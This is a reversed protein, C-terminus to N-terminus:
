LLEIYTFDGPETAAFSPRSEFLGFITSGSGSMAAYVAGSRYMQAKIVRLRPHLAFVSPEFDNRLLERWEEIPQRLLQEIPPVAVNPVVGAYAQATSIGVDPKVLLLWLGSLSVEFPTMIEGRGTALCVENKVFFPTDSGLRAALQQIIEFSLGLRWLDNCLLLVTTADASGGGLGAGSPVCKHLHIRAQSIGYERQMLRLAKVCLNNQAPCDVAIGSTTFEFEDGPLVEVLDYLGGLPYMVTVIDHYSDERRRIVNLGLNIKCISKRIM